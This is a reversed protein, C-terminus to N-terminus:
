LYDSHSFYTVFKWTGSFTDLQSGPIPYWTQSAFAYAKVADVVAARM